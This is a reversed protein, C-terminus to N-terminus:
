RPKFPKITPRPMVAPRFGGPRPLPRVAGIGGAVGELDNDSMEGTEASGVSNEATKAMAEADDGSGVKTKDSM